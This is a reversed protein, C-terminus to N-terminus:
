LKSFAKAMQYTGGILSFLAPESFNSVDFKDFKEEEPSMLSEDLAALVTPFDIQSLDMDVSSLFGASVSCLIHFSQLEPLKSAEEVSTASVKILMIAKNFHHIYVHEKGQTIDTLALKLLEVWFVICRNFDEVYINMFNPDISSLKEKDILIKSDKKRIALAFHYGGYILPLNVDILPAGGPVAKIANVTDTLVRILCQEEVAKSQKMMEESQSTLALYSQNQPLKLLENTVRTKTEVTMFEFRPLLGLYGTNSIDILVQEPDRLLIEIEKVAREIMVDTIKYLLNHKPLFYHPCSRDKLSQHLKQFVEIFIEPIHEESWYTPPKEETMWFMITKINYSTLAGQVREKLYAVYVSRLLYYVKKQCQNLCQLMQIEAMSFSLRWEKKVDGSDSSPKAVIAFCGTSIKNVLAEDPWYRPKRTVWEKAIAPWGECQLAAVRDSTAFKADLSQLCHAPSTKENSTSAWAASPPEVNMGEPMFDTRNLKRVKEASIYLANDESAELLSYFKSITQFKEKFSTIYKKPIIVKLHAPAHELPLFLRQQWESTLIEDPNLVIMFDTDSKVADPFGEAFSGTLLYLQGGPTKHQRSIVAHAAKESQSYSSHIPFGYLAMQVQEEM